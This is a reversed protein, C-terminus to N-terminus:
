RPTAPAARFGLRTARMAYRVPASWVERGDADLEVMRGNGAALLNGNPLLEATNVPFGVRWEAVRDHTADIRVVRQEDCCAILTTGDVLRDADRANANDWRWVVEGARDVEVVGTRYSAILTHGNGLRDVDLPRIGGTFSWVETGDRDVEVVRHNGSDAVLTNGDPLREADHPSAFGGCAWV